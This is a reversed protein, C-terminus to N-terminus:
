RKRKILFAIAVAVAAVVALVAATLATLLTFETEAGTTQQTQPTSEPTAPTTTQSQPTVVAVDLFVLQPFLVRSVPVENLTVAINPATVIQVTVDALNLGETLDALKLGTSYLSRVTDTLTGGEIIFKPSNLKVAIFGGKSSAVVELSAKSPLIKYEKLSDLFSILKGATSTDTPYITTYFYPYYQYYQIFQKLYEIGPKLLENVDCGVYLEGRAKVRSASATLSVELNVPAKLQAPSPSPMIPTTYLAGYQEQMLRTLSQNLATYNIIVDFEISAASGTVVVDLKNIEVGEIGSQKLSQEVATKDLTTLQDLIFAHAGTASVWVVGTIREVNEVSDFESVINDSRAEFRGDSSEISFEFRTTTTYKSDHPQGSLSLNLAFLYEAGYVPYEPMEAAAQESDLNLSIKFYGSGVDLVSSLNVDWSYSYKDVHTISVAVGDEYVHLTISPTTSLVAIPVTIIAILLLTSLAQLKV